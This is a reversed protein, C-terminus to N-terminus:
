TSLNKDNYKFATFEKLQKQIDKVFGHPNQCFQPNQFKKLDKSIRAWKDKPKYSDLIGRIGRIGEDDKSLLNLGTLYISQKTKINPYAMFIKQFIKQPNNSMDLMFFKDSEIFKNWYLNIIKQCLDKKFIDKFLPNILYGVQKLIENMKRKKSLRTEMRLVEIPKKSKEILSFLSLQKVTQDKDIARKAPKGMDNIKDYFVFSHSNCYYQLARGNNRFSVKELDFKGNLNIKSLEKIALTATYGNSLVINKSPHFSSVSAEKLKQCDIFVGMEELRKNLIEVIMEFDKEDIEDLNNEFIIKPASFEIKLELKDMRKEITLRPKYIGNRKDEATPNNVWKYFLAKRNLLQEKTTQFNACNIRLCNKLPTRLIITDLM